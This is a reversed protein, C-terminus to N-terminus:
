TKGSSVYMTNEHNLRKCKVPNEMLIFVMFHTLFDAM